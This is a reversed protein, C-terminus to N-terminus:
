SVLTTGDLSNPGQNPAPPAAATQHTPLSQPFAFPDIQQPVENVFSDFHVQNYQNLGSHHSM